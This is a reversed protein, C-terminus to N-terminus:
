NYKSYLPMKNGTKFKALQAVKIVLFTKEKLDEFIYDSDIDIPLGRVVVKLPQNSKNPFLIHEVQYSDLLKVIEQYDHIITPHIRTFIGAPSVTFKCHGEDKFRRFLKLKDELEPTRITIVNVKPTIIRKSTSQPAQPVNKDNLIVEALNQFRNNPPVTNVNILHSIKNKPFSFEEGSDQRNRKQENTSNQLSPPSSSAIIGVESQTDIDDNTQM